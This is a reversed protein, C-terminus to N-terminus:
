FFSLLTFHGIGWIDLKLTTAKAIKEKTTSLIAQAYEPPCGVASFAFQETRRGEDLFCALNFDCIVANIQHLSDDILVNQPKLDRHLINAEHIHVIGELICRAIQLKTKFDPRQVLYHMLNSAEYKEEILFLHQMGQIEFIIREYVQIVGKQGRLRMLFNSERWAFEFLESRQSRDKETDEALQMLIRPKVLALIRGKELDVTRCIIKGAGLGLFHEPTELPIYLHNQLTYIFAYPWKEPASLYFGRGKGMLRKLWQPRQKLVVAAMERLQRKSTKIKEFFIAKQEETYAALKEPPGILIQDLEKEINALAAEYSTPFKKCAEEFTTQAYQEIREKQRDLLQAIEDEEKLDKKGSFDKYIQFALDIWDKAKFYERKAQLFLSLYLDVSQNLELAKVREALPPFVFKAFREIISSYPAGEEFAMKAAAILLGKRIELPLQEDIFNEQM